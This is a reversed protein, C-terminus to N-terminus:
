KVSQSPGSKSETHYHILSHVLHIEKDAQTIQYSPTPDSRVAGRRSIPVSCYTGLVPKPSSDTSGASHNPVTQQFPAPPLSIVEEGGERIGGLSGCPAELQSSQAAAIHLAHHLTHKNVWEVGDRIAQAAALHWSMSSPVRLPGM